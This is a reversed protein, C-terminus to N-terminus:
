FLDLRGLGGDRATLALIDQMTRWNPDDVTLAMDESAKAVVLALNNPAAEDDSDQPMLAHALACRVPLDPADEDEDDEVGYEAKVRKHEITKM